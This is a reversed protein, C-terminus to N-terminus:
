PESLCLGCLDILQDVTVVGTLRLDVDDELSKM